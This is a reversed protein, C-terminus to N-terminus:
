QGEPVRAGLFEHIVGVFWLRRKKPWVVKLAGPRFRVIAMELTANEGDEGARTVAGTPASITPNLTWSSGSESVKPLQFAVNQRTGPPAGPTLRESPNSALLSLHSSTVLHATLALHKPIHASTPSGVIQAFTYTALSSLPHTPVVHCPFVGAAQRARPSAQYQARRKPFHRKNYM